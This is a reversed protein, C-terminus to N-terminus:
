WSGCNPAMSRANHAKAMVWGTWIWSICDAGDRDAWALIRSSSDTLILVVTSKPSFGDRWMTRVLKKMNAQRNPLPRCLAACWRRLSATSRAVANDICKGCAYSLRSISVLSCHSRVYRTKDTVSLYFEGNKYARIGDLLLELTSDPCVRQLFM